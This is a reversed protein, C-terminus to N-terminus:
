ILEVWLNYTTPNADTKTGDEPLIMQFQSLTGNYSNAGAPNVEGAFVINTGDTLAFTKWTPTDGDDYTEAYDATISGAAVTQTTLAGNETFTAAYSDSGSALHSYNGEVQAQTAAALSSWAVSSAETAFVVSGNATWEFMKDASGGTGSALVISGSVNGFLGAWRYTSMEASLDANRIAGSNVDVSQASAPTYTNEGHDTVQAGGPTAAYAYSAFFLVLAVAMLVGLFRKEM